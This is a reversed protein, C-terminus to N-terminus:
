ALKCSLVKGYERFTEYFVRTTLAPQELPLNSFFVNTGINKRFYSNRMSPMIRVERGFLNVYSFTEIATEADKSSYFNLYGYGLSIGTESDVCIKVSILSPFVRFTDNLMKETVNPDLDGIFLSSVKQSTVCPNYSNNMQVVIAPETCDSQESSNCSLPTNEAQSEKAVRAASIQDGQVKSKGVSRKGAPRNVNPSISSLVKDSGICLNKGAERSM